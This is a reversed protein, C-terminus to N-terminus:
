MSGTSRCSRMCDESAWRARGSKRWWIAKASSRAHTRQAPHPFSGRQDIKGGRVIRIPPIRIGEQFIERGPGMSGAFTGGVDAHHARAAVYFVPDPLHEVFVPLVLTIDPLHTGGAYPDNLIVM